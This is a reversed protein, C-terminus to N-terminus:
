GSCVVCLMMMRFVCCVVDDDQVCLVVCMMMRFVCCVVDDDQVCLM